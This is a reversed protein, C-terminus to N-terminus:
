PVEGPEPHCYLIPTGRRCRQNVENCIREGEPSNAPVWKTDQPRRILDRGTDMADPSGAGPAPKSLWGIFRNGPESCRGCAFVHAQVGAPEGQYPGSETEIPGAQASAVFLKKSNQDYFYALSEPAQQQQRSSGSQFFYVLVGVSIALLAFCTLLVATPHQQLRERISM